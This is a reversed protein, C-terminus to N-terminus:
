TSQSGRGKDFKACNKGTKSIRDWQKKLGKGRKAAELRQRNRQVNFADAIGRSAM